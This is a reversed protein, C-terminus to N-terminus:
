LSCRENSAANEGYCRVPQSIAIAGTSHTERKQYISYSPGEVITSKLEYEGPAPMDEAQKEARYANILEQADAKAQKM